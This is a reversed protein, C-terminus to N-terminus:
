IVNLYNLDPFCLLQVSLASANAFARILRKHQIVLNNLYCDYISGWFYLKTNYRVRGRKYEITGEKNERIRTLSFLAMISISLRAKLPLYSWILIGTNRAIKGTILKIYKVFFYDIMLLYKKFNVRIKLPVM